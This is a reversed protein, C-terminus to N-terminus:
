SAGEADWWGHASGTDLCGKCARDAHGHITVAYYAPYPCGTTHCQKPQNAVIPTPTRRARPTRKLAWVAFALIALVYLAAAGDISATTM